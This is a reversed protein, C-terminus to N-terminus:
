KMKRYIEIVPEREGSFAAVREGVLGALRPKNLHFSITDGAVAVVWREHLFLDPRVVAPLWQLPTGDNLTERLPIGAAQYIALVDGSATLIGDGPRYQWRFFEAAEKTWARRGRSNVESEKWCMWSEVRPHIFWGGLCLALLGAATAARLFGNAWLAVLAGLAAACFPLAALAYRTNYYSFPYLTPVFLPTGGSHISMVYFPIPLALLLLPRTARRLLVVVTGAAAMWVVPRGLTLEMAKRYYLWATQAAHDGPYPAYGRALGRAYIAQASYPGHYFELADSFLYQNHGLWYLPGLCAVFLFIVAGSKSRALLFFLGFFPILFWGEYRTLSAAL